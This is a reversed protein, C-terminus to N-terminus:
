RGGGCWNSGWNTQRTAYLLQNRVHIIASCCCELDLATGDGKFKEVPVLFGFGLGRCSEVIGVGIM